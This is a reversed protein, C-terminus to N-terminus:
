VGLAWQKCGDMCAVKATQACVEADKEQRRNFEVEESGFWHCWSCSSCWSPSFLTVKQIKKKKSPQELGAAVM